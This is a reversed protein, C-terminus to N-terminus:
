FLYILPFLFIWVIDVFHWYLGTNELLGARKRDLKMPMIIAFVVLGIFVHLAHIGTMLFYTSSWMQAGPISMPLRLWAYHHNLGGHAENMETRLALRARIGDLEQTLKSVQSQAEASATAATSLQSSSIILKQQLDAIAKELDAPKPRAPEDSPWDDPHPSVEDPVLAIQPLTALQDKLTKQEAMIDKISQQLPPLAVSTSQVTTTATTLQEQVTREAQRLQVAEQRQYHNAIPGYAELPYIDYAMSIIAMQQTVPDPDTGVVQATWKALSSKLRDVIFLREARQSEQSKLRKLEAKIQPFQYRLKTITAQKAELETEKQVLETQLADREESSITSLIENKPELRQQLDRILPVLVAVESQMSRIEDPLSQSQEDLQNQRIGATNIDMALQTLRDNVASLFYLDARDYMSSHPRGPMLNHNWKSRYEYAKFGLFVCGLILTVVLWKRALSALDRRAAEFALVISVSSCILVFTNVAGVWEEVHVDIPRPWTGSPAGFRLVVYSGILGSFFMIETSLFLWLMLKGRSMPLGPQYQLQIRHSASPQSTDTQLAQSTM